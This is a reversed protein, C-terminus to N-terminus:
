HVGSEALKVMRKYCIVFYTIEAAATIVWSFSYLLYLSTITRFYAFVTYVWAVRFVCSGIIVIVTPVVTKGIGRSAAIPCDMLASIAYSWGMIRIREMGCDIVEPENAFVSLFERGFILLLGGLLAGVAFSYVLGVICSKKVRGYEGAGLNRSVFSSCGLYFAAMVNYILTDANAAASNGSVLMADFSNVGSQVFLNAVAFIASQIGSPIGLMLVNRCCGADIYSRSFRLRCSDRRTVLHRVILFASLYEAIVSAIAVGDAAKGCVIVFFLNLIVNLVGAITLYTLPRKTEGCASLVGNGFNFIGMAPMGLSYIKLYLEAGDIFEDKTHLLELLPRSFVFCLLGVITGILFCMMFSSCVTRETGREDGAGLRRAACVNVGNGMGLLFGIFLSVLLSTSGVAGLAKYDAFKGAVAVDSLNFLVQLVQALILPLSFILMNKWISGSTMEIAQPHSHSVIHRRM